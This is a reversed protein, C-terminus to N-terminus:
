FDNESKFEIGKGARASRIHNRTADLLVYVIGILCIVGILVMVKNIMNPLYFEFEAYEDTTNTLDWQLEKGGNETKTANSSIPKSPLSVTFSVEPIENNIIPQGNVTDDNAENVVSKADQFAIKAKYKNKLFGREVQFMFNSHNSTNTLSIDAIVENDSSIVDINKYFKSLSYGVFNGDDYDEIKYGQKELRTKENPDIFAARDGSNYEKKIAYVYTLNMKKSNTINMKVDIKVCGATFVIILLLIIKQIKNKM